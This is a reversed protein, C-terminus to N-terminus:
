KEVVVGHFGEAQEESSFTITIEEIHRSTDDLVEIHRQSFSYEWNGAYEWLRNGDAYVIIEQSGPVREYDIGIRKVESDVFLKYVTSSEKILENASYYRFEDSLLTHDGEEQKKDQKVSMKQDALRYIEDFTAAMEQFYLKQGEDNPHTGDDCLTEYPMGSEEFANIMDVVYAQYKTSLDLITHMKSTYARQSSELITILECSSWKNLIAQLMQEYYDSFGEEADNEGYCVIVIDFEPEDLEMVRVYGAYSANGGMSVNTIQLENGYNEKVYPILYKYWKQSPDSAGAGEGISDGVILVRVINARSSKEHCFFLVLVAVVPILCYLIKQVTVKSKTM